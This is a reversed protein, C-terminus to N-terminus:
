QELVVVVEASAQRSTLSVPRRQWVEVVEVEVLLSLVSRRRPQRTALQTVAVLEL